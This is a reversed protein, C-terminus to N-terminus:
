PYIKFREPFLNFRKPVRPVWEESIIFGELFFMKPVVSSGPEADKLQM